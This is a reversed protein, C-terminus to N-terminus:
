DGCNSLSIAWHKSPWIICLHNNQLPLGMQFESTWVKKLPDSQSSCSVGNSPFPLKHTFLWARLPLLCHRHM